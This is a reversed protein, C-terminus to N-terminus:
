ATARLDDRGLTLLCHFPADFEVAYGAGGAYVFVVAGESGEPLVQGECDHDHRLAVVSLEPFATVSRADDPM